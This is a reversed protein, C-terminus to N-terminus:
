CNTSFSSADGRVSSWQLLEEFEPYLVKDPTTAKINRLGLWQGTFNETFAKAKPHKLMREVQARLVDPKHLEGNRALAFLTEDPMTSWLFYSLRSALAHDDLVGTPERFYLFKPSTLVGKIGARLAADFPQGAKLSADVMAIFPKDEGEAVPRRFARPLLERLLKEADALTGRRRSRNRWVSSSLKETPWTEPFPGKSKM